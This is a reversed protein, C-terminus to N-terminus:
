LLDIGSALSCLWNLGIIIVFYEEYKQLVLTYETGVIIDSQM